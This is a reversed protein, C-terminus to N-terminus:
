QARLAIYNTWDRAALRAWDAANSDTLGLLEALIPAPASGALQFLAAKRAEYPKIGIKVLDRRFAETTLHQGPSGGPFLWGTDRSVYLSQGRRKLHDHVLADLLPPMQLPTSSFSVHVATDTATVQDTRMAAIRHLPQAFLLTFLGGLRTYSRLSPDHLLRHVHEWRQEDSITVEPQTAPLTAIRLRTNIRSDRLWRIFSGDASRNSAPTQQYDELHHQTADAVSVNHTDLWTLFRVATRIQNRAATATSRTLHGRSAARRMSRLVHWHAYRRILDADVDPLPDLLGNLWALVREIPYDVPPLVGTASLLMQVYERTRTAPLARFTDHSIAAEGRAMQGLLAPGIGPKKRLWWIGTQPRESNVLEDFVPQLQHHVAGTAPDTLLSTLRERLICRACRHYSYPQDERGCERCAFVSEVGACSACVIQDGHHFALPKLDGCQPCPEPHYHRRRRCALCLPGGPTTTFSHRNGGCDWCARESM